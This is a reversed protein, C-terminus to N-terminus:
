DAAFAHRPIGQLYLLATLDGHEIAVPATAAVRPHARYAVGLGGAALMPLDNAGDGVTLTHELGLLHAASLQELLDLKSAPCRVPELVRGTLRGNAIELDNAQALHFGLERQVRKAFPTFGGSALATIAGYRRMTRVLTRAGPMMRVRERYVEDLMAVPLGELLAVRAALAARFDLEGNMAQRTIAAVEAKVGCVAALEDVCEVTILTSDMDSLLLRKRRHGAAVVAVDVPHGTALARAQDLLSRRDGTVVFECAEEEALWRPGRGLARAMVDVLGASLPALAPNAILCVVHDPHLGAAAIVAPAPGAGERPLLHAM